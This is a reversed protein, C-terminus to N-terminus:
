YEVMYRINYEPGSPGKQYLLMVRISQSTDMLKSGLLYMKGDPTDTSDQSNGALQDVLELLGSQTPNVAADLWAIPGDDGFFFITYGVIPAGVDVAYGDMVFPDQKQSAMFSAGRDELYKRAGTRDASHGIINLAESMRFKGELIDLDHASIEQISSTGSGCSVSTAVIAFSLWSLALGIQGTQNSRVIM